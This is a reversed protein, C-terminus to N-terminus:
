YTSQKEHDGDKKEEKGKSSRLIMVGDYASKKKSLPQTKRLFKRTMRMREM